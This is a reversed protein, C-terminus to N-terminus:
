SRLSAAVTEQGNQAPTAFTEPYHRPCSGSYAHLRKVLLMKPRPNLERRRWWELIIIILLNYFLNEVRVVRRNGRTFLRFRIQKEIETIQRSLGSQPLNLRLAAKTFHLEEGLAIVALLHRVEVNPFM